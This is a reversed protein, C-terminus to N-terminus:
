GLGARFQVDAILDGVRGRAAGPAHLGDRHRLTLMPVQDLRLSPVPYFFAGNVTDRTGDLAMQLQWAFDHLARCNSKM